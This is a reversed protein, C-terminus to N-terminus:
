GANSSFHPSASENANVRQLHTDNFRTPYKLGFALMRDLAIHGIWILAYPLLWTSQSPVSYGILLLPGILTHVLNYSITGARIGRLYGLMALDPVLFLVVFLLWNAHVTGYYLLSLALICAGEIRLLIGPKTFM